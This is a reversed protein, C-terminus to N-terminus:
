KESELFKEYADASMLEDVQGKDFDKLKYLWGKEYPSENITEPSSEVDANVECVEGGVPAYIDSAAKVSEIVGCEASKEIKQGVSPLEVFTIDGLSDQAHDSIGVIVTDGDVQIWEHTQTFRYDSPISM